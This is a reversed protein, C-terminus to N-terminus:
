PRKSHFDVKTVKKESRKKTVDKRDITSKIKKRFSMLSEYLCLAYKIKSNDAVSKFLQTDIKDKIKRVFDDKSNFLIDHIMVFFDQCVDADSLLAKLVEVVKLSKLHTTNGIEYTETTSIDNGNNVLVSLAKLTEENIDYKEMIEPIGADIKSFKSLGFLYDISINLNEALWKLKLTPIDHEGREYKTYSSPNGGHAEAFAKPTLCKLDLRANKIETGMRKLFAVAIPDRKDLPGSKKEQNTNNEM